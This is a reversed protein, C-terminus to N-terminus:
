IHLLGGAVYANNTRKTYYELENNGWGGSNGTDFSWKTTDVNSSTATNFEDSWVLSLVQGYTTPVGAGFFGFLLFGGVASTLFGRWSLTKLSNAFVRTATM